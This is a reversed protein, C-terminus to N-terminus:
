KEKLYRKIQKQQLGLAAAIEPTSKGQARLQAAQRRRARSVAQAKRMRGKDACRSCYLQPRRGRRSKKISDLRGCVSCLIVGSAGVALTALQLGLATWLPPVGLMTLRPPHDRFWLKLEGSALWHFIARYPDSDGYEKVLALAGDRETVNPKKTLLTVIARAWRSFQLWASVQELVVNGYDTAARQDADETTERASPCHPRVHAFPWDHEKCLGLAGYRTAFYFLRGDAIPDDVSLNCFDALMKFDGLALELPSRGVVYPKKYEFSIQEGEVRVGKLPRPWPELSEWRGADEEVEWLPEVFEPVREFREIM